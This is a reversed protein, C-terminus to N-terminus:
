RVSSREAAFIEALGQRYTPYLLRVGLERKIRDNHVRKNDDYFSRAMPSLAAEAFAIPPPPAVGLLECAYLIVDAPPAAEDDCLNYARGPSPQEISALLVQVIDAVHIRSFVQGPKVINRARGARVTDLASSGPGYIGALRFLHAPPTLTLWQREAALRRAGRQGSPELASDEDVWGGDRDGYVGTTSLYGTWALHRQARLVDGHLDMVPDGDADPPVSSLLHTVDALHRDLGAIPQNRDFLHPTLGQATLRAAKEMTRCTGSVRWGRRLLAEALAGASYGLGFCFLHPQAGAKELAAQTM